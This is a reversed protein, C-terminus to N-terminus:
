CKVYAKRAGSRYFLGGRPGQELAVTTGDTRTFETQDKNCGSVYHMDLRRVPRVPARASPRRVPRVPRRASLRRAPRAASRRVPPPRVPPQKGEAPPVPPKCVGGHCADAVCGVPDTVRPEVPSFVNDHGGDARGDFPALIIQRKAPDPHLLSKLVAKTYPSLSAFQAPTVLSPPDVDFLISLITNGVTFLMNRRHMQPTWKIPHRAVGYSALLPSDAGHVVRLTARVDRWESPRSLRPVAAPDQYVPTFASPESNCMNAPGEPGGTVCADMIDILYLQGRHDLVLNNPSLDTHAIEADMMSQALRMINRVLQDASKFHNRWHAWSVLYLRELVHVILGVHSQHPKMPIIESSIIRPTAYPLHETFRNMASVKAAVAALRHTTPEIRLLRGPERPLVYVVACGGQFAPTSNPPIGHATLVRNVMPEFGHDPPFIKAPLPMAKITDAHLNFDM